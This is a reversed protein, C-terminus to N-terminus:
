PPALACLVSPWAPLADAAEIEELAGALLKTAQEFVSSTRADRGSVRVQWLRETEAARERAEAGRGSVTLSVLAAIALCPEELCYERWLHNLITAARPDAIHGVSVIALARAPAPITRRRGFSLLPLLAAEGINALAWGVAQGLTLDSPTRAITDLLAPIATTSRMAGLTIVIRRVALQKSASNFGLPVRFRIPHLRTHPPTLVIELPPRIGTQLDALRSLLVSAAEPDAVLSGIAWMPNTRPNELQAIAQQRNM